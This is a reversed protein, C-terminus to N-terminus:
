PDPMAVLQAVPHWLDCIHSPDWTETVIAYAQLQLELEMGLRPVEMHWLDPRLSFVSLCVVFLWTGFFDSCNKGTINNNYQLVFM